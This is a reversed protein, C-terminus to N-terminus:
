KKWFPKRSEERAQLQDFGIDRLLREDMQALSAREMRRRKWTKATQIVKTYKM